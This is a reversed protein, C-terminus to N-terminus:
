PVFGETVNISPRSACGTSFENTQVFEDYLHRESATYGTEPFTTAQLTM